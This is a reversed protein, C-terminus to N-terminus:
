EINRLIQFSNSTLSFVWKLCQSINVPFVKDEFRDQVTNIKTTHSVSLLASAKNRAVIISGCFVIMVLAKFSFEGAMCLDIQSLISM